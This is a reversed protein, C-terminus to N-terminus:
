PKAFGEGVEFGDESVQVGFIARHDSESDARAWGDEDGVAGNSM